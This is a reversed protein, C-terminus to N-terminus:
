PKRIQRVMLNQNEVEDMFDYIERATLDQYVLRLLAFLPVCFVQMLLIQQKLKTRKFSRTNKVFIFFIKIWFPLM